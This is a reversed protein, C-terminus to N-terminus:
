GGIAQELNSIHANEFFGKPLISNEAQLVQPDEGEELRRQDSQRAARKQAARRDLNASQSQDIELPM